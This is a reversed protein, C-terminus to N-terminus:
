RAFRDPVREEAAQDESDYDVDIVPEEGASFAASSVVIVWYYLGIMVLNLCWAIASFTWSPDGAQVSSFIALGVLLGSLIYLSVKTYAVTRLLLLAWRQRAFSGVAAPIQLLSALSFLGGLIPVLLGMNPTYQKVALSAVRQAFAVPHDQGPPVDPQAGFLAPIWFMLGTFGLVLTVAAALRLSFPNFASAATGHTETVSMDERAPDNRKGAFM